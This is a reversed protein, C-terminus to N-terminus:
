IQTVSLDITNYTVQIYSSIVSVFSPSIEPCTPPKHNMVLRRYFALGCEKYYM